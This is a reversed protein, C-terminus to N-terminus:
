KKTFAKVVPIQFKVGLGGTPVNYATISGGHAEIINKCITLGLGSGKVEPTRSKDSRYFKGFIKDIEDGSVGRGNDEIKFVANEYEVACSITISDAGYKFSNEILNAFVRYIKKTEIMIYYNSQISYFKHLKKGLADLEKEYEEVVNNYFSALNVKEVNYTDVDESKIYYEFEQILEKMYESKNHIINYCSIRNTEDMNNNIMLRETFGIVSTLPTKLDHSISSVIENQQKYSENLKIILERFKQSVQGIEDKRKTAEPIMLPNKSVMQITNSLNSLPRAFTFHLYITLVLMALVIILHHIGNFLYTLSSNEIVYKWNVYNVNVIYKLNKNVIVLSTKYLKLGERNKEHTSFILNNNIDYINIIINKKNSINKLENKSISINGKDKRLVFSIRNSLNSLQQTSKTLQKPIQISAVFSESTKLLISAILVILAITLPLKYKISM